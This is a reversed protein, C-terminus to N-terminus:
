KKQTILLYCQQCIMEQKRNFLIGGSEHCWGKASCKYRKEVNSIEVGCKFCHDIMDGVYQKVQLTKEDVIEAWQHQHQYISTRRWFKSAENMNSEQCIESLPLSKIHKLIPVQSPIDMLDINVWVNESIDHLNRENNCLYTEESGLPYLPSVFLNGKCQLLTMELNKDNKRKEYKDITIGCALSTDYRCESIVINQCFNIRKSYINAGIAQGPGVFICKRVSLTVGSNIKIACQNYEDIQCDNIQVNADKEILMWIKPMPIKKFQNPSAEIVLNKLFINVKPAIKLFAVDHLINGPYYIEYFVRTKKFLGICSCHKDFHIAARKCVNEDTSRNQKQIFFPKKSPYFIFRDGACYNWYKLYTFPLIRLGLKLEGKSLNYRSSSQERTKLLGNREPHVIWTTNLM